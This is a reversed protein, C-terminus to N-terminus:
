AVLSLDRMQNEAHRALHHEVVSFQHLAGARKVLARQASLPHQCVLFLSLAIAAAVLWVQQYGQEWRASTFVRMANASLNLTLMGRLLVYGVVRWLPAGFLLWFGLHLCRQAAVNNGRRLAALAGIGASWMLAGLVLIV